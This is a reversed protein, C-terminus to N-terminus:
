NQKPLFNDKWETETLVKALGEFYDRASVNESSKAKVMAAPITEYPVGSVLTRFMKGQYYQTFAGANKKYIESTSYTSIYAKQNHLRYMEQGWFPMADVQEKSMEYEFPKTTYTISTFERLSEDTHCFQIFEKVLADKKKDLKASVFCISSNVETMSYKEGVKDATPKPLPMLGFKRNKLSAKEGSSQAIAEFAKKSENLWWSGDILMAVPKEKELYKNMVFDNQAHTQMYAKSKVKNKSYFTENQTLREAFKLGWYKGAQKTWTLYGNEPTIVKSEVQPNGNSDFGKVISTATGSATYNLRMQEEGEYDAQLSEVLANVYAQSVGNWTIPLIDRDVMEECLAFFEDYTAPLGDDASYDIGDIVGTKGDPGKSRKANGKKIFGGSEAFYLKNEEFLDIDYIIGYTAEYFPLGYYKDNPGFYDKHVDNIMKDKISKTEPDKEDIKGTVFDYNIPKTVAESIDYLLGRKQLDYYNIAESFFVEQRSPFNSVLSENTLNREPKAIIQVGMKGKEFSVNAYKEEFRKEVADMWSSGFGGDFTAVYLQTKSKDVKEGGSTCNITGFACVLALFIVLIKKMFNGGLLQMAENKKIKFWIKSNNVILSKGMLLNKRMLSLFARRERANNKIKLNLSVEM